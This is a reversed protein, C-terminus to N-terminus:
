GKEVGLPYIYSRCPPSLHPPFERLMRADALLIDSKKGLSLLNTHMCNLLHKLVQQGKGVIIPPFIVCFPYFLTLHSEQLLIVLHYILNSTENYQIM